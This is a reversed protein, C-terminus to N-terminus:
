VSKLHRRFVWIYPTEFGTRGIRKAIPVPQAVATENNGGCRVLQAVCAVFVLNNTSEERDMQSQKM